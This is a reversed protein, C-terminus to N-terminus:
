MPPIGGTIFSFKSEMHYVAMRLIALLTHRLIGLYIQEEIACYWGHTPHTVGNGWGVIYTEKPEWAGGQKPLQQATTHFLKAGKSRCHTGM